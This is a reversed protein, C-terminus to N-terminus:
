EFIRHKFLTKLDSFNVKPERCVYISQIFDEDEEAYRDTIEGKKTVVNFYKEWFSVPVDGFCYVIVVAPLPGSDPAWTYFSGHYSFAEPLGYAERYLNVAGAQKYHKGWIRCDAQDTEPLQHYVDAITQLTRQWLEKSYFEQFDVPYRGNEEEIHMYAIFHDLKLLPMGYPLLASGSLILLSIIPYLAWKKKQLFAQEIWVSGIVLLCILAPFFYYAKGKALILMSVAIVNALLAPKEPKKWVAALACGIGTLYVPAVLPNMHIFIDKFTKGASLEDLQTAYLAHMHQLVPFDHQIQWILNPLILLFALGAYGLSKPALIVQRTNKFFLLPVLGIILFASDYKTLVAAALALYLYLLRRPSPNQTFRVLQFFSLVWFFQIFVVPQFLQNTRTFAPAALLCLLTLVLARTNGGLRLVLLAALIFIGLAALHTFFHHVFVSTSGSLNQLAAFCAIVPPFEMYGFALHHGTEIHLFEDGQFGSHADAILHLTLKILCAISTILLANRKM